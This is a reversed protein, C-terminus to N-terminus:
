GAVILGRGLFNRSAQIDCVELGFNQGRLFGLDDSTELFFTAYYCHGSVADVVRGRQRLRLDSDGHARSGVDGHFTAADGQKFSVKFSNQARALQAM